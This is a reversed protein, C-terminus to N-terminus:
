RHPGLALRRHEDDYTILRVRGRVLATDLSLRAPLAEAGSRRREDVERSWRDGLM